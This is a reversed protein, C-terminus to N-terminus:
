SLLQLLFAHSLPSAQTEVVYDIVSHASNPTKMFCMTHKKRIPGQKFQKLFWTFYLIEKFFDALIKGKMSWLSSLHM